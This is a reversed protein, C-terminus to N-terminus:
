VGMQELDRGAREALQARQELTPTSPPPIAGLNPSQADIFRRIAEHSTM